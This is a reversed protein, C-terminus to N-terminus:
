YTSSLTLNPHILSSAHVTFFCWPHTWPVYQEFPLLYQKHFNPTSAGFSLGDATKGHHYSLTMIDGECLPDAGGMVVSYHWGGTLASLEEFVQGLIMPLSLSRRKNESERWCCQGIKQCRQSATEEWIEKKIEESEDAFCDTTHQWVASLRQTPQVLNKKLADSVLPKVKSKYHLKSYVEVEKLDQTGQAHQQAAVKGKSNNQFWEWLKVKKNQQNLHTQQLILHLWKMSSSSLTKALNTPVLMRM